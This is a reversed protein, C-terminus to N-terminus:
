ALRIEEFDFSRFLAFISINQQAIAGPVYCFWQGWPRNFFISTNQWKESFYECFNTSKQAFWCVLHHIITDFNM